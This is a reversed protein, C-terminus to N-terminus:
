LDRMIPIISGKILNEFSNVELFYKWESYIYMYIFPQYISPKAGIMQCAM